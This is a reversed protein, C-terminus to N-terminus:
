CCRANTRENMNYHISIVGTDSAAAVKARGNDVPGDVARGRGVVDGGVISGVFVPVSFVVVEGIYVVLSDTTAREWCKAVVIHGRFV